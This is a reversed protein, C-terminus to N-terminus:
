AVWVISWEPTFAMMQLVQSWHANRCEAIASTSLTSATSISFRVSSSFYFNDKLTVWAVPLMRAHFACMNCEICWSWARTSSSSINSMLITPGPSPWLISALSIDRFGSWNTQYAHYEKACSCRRWSVASQAIWMRGCRWIGCVLYWCLNCHHGIGDLLEFRCRRSM